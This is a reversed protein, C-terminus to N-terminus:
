QKITTPEFYFTTGTTKGAAALTSGTLRTFLQQILGQTPHGEFENGKIGDQINGTAVTIRDLVKKGQLYYICGYCGLSEYYCLYMAAGTKISLAQLSAEAIRYETEIFVGGALDKVVAMSNVWQGYDADEKVANLSYGDIATDDESKTLSAENINSIAYGNIYISM